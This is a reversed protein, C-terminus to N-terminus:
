TNIKNERIYPNVCENPFFIFIQLVFHAFFIDPYEYELFIVFCKVLPINWWAYIKQKVHFWKWSFIRSFSKVSFSNVKGIIYAVMNWGRYVWGINQLSKERISASKTHMSSNSLFLLLHFYKTLRAPVTIGSTIKSYM